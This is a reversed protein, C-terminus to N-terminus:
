LKLKLYEEWSDIVHVAFGHNRLEEHRYTQLISPKKGKDKVEIFILRGVGKKDKWMVELDPHGPRNCVNIKLVYYGKETLHKIIRSQLKSESAM